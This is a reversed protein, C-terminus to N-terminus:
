HAGDALGNCLSFLLIQLSSFGRYLSGDVVACTTEAKGERTKMIELLWVLCHNVVDAM